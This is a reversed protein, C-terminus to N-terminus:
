PSTPYRQSLAKLDMLMIHFSGPKLEVSKGAPIDLDNM